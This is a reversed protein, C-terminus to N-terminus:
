YPKTGVTNGPPNYNAVIIVAGNSCTAKGIGVSQTTKWIMQTYHGVGKNTGDFPGYQYQDIESYWSRSADTALLSRGQAWFINEGYQQAWTGSAPRHKMNCGSKALHDAWAQAFAALEASWSLSTVSVDKRAKNHVDLADQAEQQSLLSGTSAPVTQARTAVTFLLLISLLVQGNKM